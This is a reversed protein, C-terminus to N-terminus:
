KGFYTKRMELYEGPYLVGLKTPFESYSSHFTSDRMAFVKAGDGGNDFRDDINKADWYFYRSRYTYEYCFPEWGEKNEFGDLAIGFTNYGRETASNAYAEDIDIHARMLDQALTLGNAELRNFYDAIESDTYQSYYMVYDPRNAWYSTDGNKERTFDNGVYAITTHLPYCYATPDKTLFRTPLAMASDSMGNHFTFRRWTSNEQSWGTMPNKLYSGEQRFVPNAWGSTDVNEFDYFQVGNWIRCLAATYLDEETLDPSEQVVYTEIGDEDTVTQFSGDANQAFKYDAMKYMRICSMARKLRESLDIRYAMKEYYSSTSYNDILSYATEWATLPNAADETLIMNCVTNFEEELRLYTDKYSEFGPERFACADEMATSLDMAYKTLAEIPEDDAPQEIGLDEAYQFHSSFDSVYGDLYDMEQNLYGVSDNLVNAELSRLRSYEGFVLDKLEEVRMGTQELDSVMQKNEGFLGIDSCFQMVMAGLFVVGMATNIAGNVAGVRALMFEQNQLRVNMWSSQGAAEAQLWNLRGRIEALLQNGRAGDYELFDYMDWQLFRVSAEIGDGSRVTWRVVGQLDGPVHLGPGSGARGMSEQSYNRTYTSDASTPSGWRSVLSGAKMVIGGDMDLSEATQGEAPVTFVLEANTDGEQKVSEAKAQEFAGDFAIQDTGLGEALTGNEGYLIVTFKLDSGSEEVYDFVPYFYAERATVAIKTEGAVTLTQGNLAAAAKNADDAGAITMTLTVQTDSDKKVDTVTVDKEFQFDAATLEALPKPVSLLELSATVSGGEARITEPLLSNGALEVPIAARVSSKAEKIARPSVTVVGDVYSLLGEPMVPKGTLQMTLNKGAASVSAIEMKEFSGSLAIDDKTVDDAYAGDNLELTLRVEEDDSRVSQINPTVEYEQFLVSVAFSVDEDGDQKEEQADTEQQAEAEKRYEEPYKTGKLTVDYRETLNTGADPDSFSIELKGKEAKVSEVQVQKQSTYASADVSVTEAPAATGASGSATDESQADATEQAKAAEELAKEYGAEDLVDYTVTVDEAKVASLDVVDSTVAAMYKGESNFAVDEVAVAPAMGEEEAEAPAEDGGSGGNNSSCGALCQAAMVACLGLAIWKRAIYRKGARTKGIHEKGVKKKM